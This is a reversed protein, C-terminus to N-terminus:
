VTLEVDFRGYSRGDIHGLSPSVAYPALKLSDETIPNTPSRSVITELDKTITFPRFKHDHPGEFVTSETAVQRAM